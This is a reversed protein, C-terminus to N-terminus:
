LSHSSINVDSHTASRAEEKPPFHLYVKSITLKHANVLNIKQSVTEESLNKSRRLRTSLSM